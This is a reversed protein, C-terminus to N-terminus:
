SAPPPLFGFSHLIKQGRPSTVFNLFAGSDPIDHTSSVIRDLDHCGICNLLSKKQSDSGPFSALWEANTLQKPVNRTPRLKIDSSATTGAVVEASSPGDLDYGAARISLSYHGPELKAAPFSFRGKEDTVVSITVITADRKASVIVGEMAGEATSSVQGALAIPAQAQAALISIGAVFLGANLGLFINRSQM